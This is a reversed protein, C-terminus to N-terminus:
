RLSATCRRAGGELCFVFIRLQVAAGQQLGERGPALGGAEMFLLPGWHPHKKEGVGDWGRIPGIRLVGLMEHRVDGLRQVVGRPKSTLPLAPPTGVRRERPLRPRRVDVSAMPENGGSRPPPM